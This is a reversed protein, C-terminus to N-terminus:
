LMLFTLIKLSKGDVGYMRRAQCLTGKDVWNYTRGLEMFAVCVKEVLLWLAFVWDECGRALRLRDQENDIMDDTVEEEIM